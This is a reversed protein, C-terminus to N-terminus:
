IHMCIRHQQLRLYAHMIMEEQGEHAKNLQVSWCSIAEALVSIRIVSNEPMGLSKLM